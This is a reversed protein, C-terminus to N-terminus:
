NLQDIRSIASRAWALDAPTDAWLIPDTTVHGFLLQSQVLLPFLHRSIDPNEIDPIMDLITPDCCIVGANVLHSDSEGATPKEIFRCVVNGQDLEAVGSASTDAREFLLLTAVGGNKLHVRELESLDVVALNDGYVVLFPSGTLFYKANSLAGATGLPEVEYFYEIRVGWGSGDGFHEVISDPAVHLNIGIDTYGAAALREINHELIPKGGLQVMPKPLGEALTGLRSGVGASLIFAKTVSV